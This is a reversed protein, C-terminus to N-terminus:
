NLREFGAHCIETVYQLINEKKALIREIQGMVEDFATFYKDLVQETHAYSMYFGTSALFGKKLM